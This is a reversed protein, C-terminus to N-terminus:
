PVEVDWVIFNGSSAGAAATMGDPAFALSRIENGIKWDLRQVERGTAPDWLHIKKTNGASALLKGSPHFALRHVNASLGTIRQRVEGTAVDWIIIRWGVCAALMGGDASFVLDDHDYNSTWQDVGNPNLQVFQDSNPRLCFLQGYESLVALTGDISSSMRKVWNPSRVSQREAHPRHKALDWYSLRTNPGEAEAYVVTRDDASLAFEHGYEPSPIEAILMEASIDWVRFSALSVAALIFRADRTVVLQSLSTGSKGRLKFLKRPKGSARDWATVWGGGDGTYLITSDASFALCGVGLRGVTQQWM